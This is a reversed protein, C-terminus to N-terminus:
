GLLKKAEDIKDILADYQMCTCEETDHEDAPCKHSDDDRLDRIMDQLGGLFDDWAQKRGPKYNVAYDRSDNTTETKKKKKKAM